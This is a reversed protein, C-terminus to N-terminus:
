IRYTYSKFSPKNSLQQTWKALNSSKGVKGLSLIIMIVDMENKCFHFSGLQVSHKAFIQCVSVSNFFFFRMTKEKQSEKHVM